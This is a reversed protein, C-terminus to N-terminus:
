RVGERWDYSRWFGRSSEHSVSGHSANRNSAGCRKRLHECKCKREDCTMRRPVSVVFCGSSPTQGVLWRAGCGRDFFPEALKVGRDNVERDGHQEGCRKRLREECGRAPRAEAVDCSKHDPDSRKSCHTCRGEAPKRGLRKFVHRRSEKGPM